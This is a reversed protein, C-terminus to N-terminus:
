LVLQSLQSGHSRLGSASSEAEPREGRGDASEETRSASPPPSQTFACRTSDLLLLIVLAGTM